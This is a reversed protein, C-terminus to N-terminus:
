KVIGNNRYWEYTRKIGEAFSVKARYNFYTEAKAMSCGWYRYKFYEDLNKKRLVPDKGTIKAYIEFIYCFFYLFGASVPIVLTKKKLVSKIIKVLERTNYVRDEGIYFIEGIARKSAVAEIMGAAIDEVFAINTEMSPFKLELHKSVLKFATYLGGNSRPGYVLPLRVITVPIKNKLSMIYKEAKMKSIGYDSVPNPIKDETQIEGKNVPGAAAVSSVFLFRKLPLKLEICVDFLNKTGEVNVLNVINSDTSDVSAALHYIVTIDKLVGYLSKKDTIDGFVIKAGLNEIQNFDEGPLVLCVPKEGSETLKKVLCSGIFGTGGTVLINEKKKM